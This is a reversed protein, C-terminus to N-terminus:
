KINLNNKLVKLNIKKYSYPIPQLRRYYKEGIYLWYYDDSKAVYINKAITEQSKTKKM